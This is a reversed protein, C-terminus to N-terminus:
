EKHVSYTWIPCDVHNVVNETLSGVFLHALGRRGHTAMALMDAKTEHVFDIIGNREDFANRVNVTYNEVKYHKAFELIAEKAEQDKRFRTPTNIL